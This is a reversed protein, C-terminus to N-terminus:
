LKVKKIAKITKDLHRETHATSLFNAEFQSPPLYIGEALMQTFYKSYRETDCKLASDYDKVTTDTFFLTFMSGIRNISHAVGKENMVDSIADTFQCTLKALKTYPKQTKLQTLMALGAAVCVPNGSLTGAQYVSGEPSLNKMIKASGGIAGIPFGGGIIKGLCTLDAKVGFGKQVGGYAVRFGTIVEDFILISKNKNCLTRLGKLFTQSPKIVGMNGAIPEVIVAAISKSYKTFAKKAADLDNYPVLITNKAFDKPVGPSSPAGLTTLGSGAAVLMHDVHGHYCGTFKIVKDRKTTGRALRIATMTAETGSSVLRVKEVSEIANVIMKALDTEQKTPIGYSTGKSLAKKVNGIVTPNAHGLILPGWSLCYDIYRNGDADYLYVGKAKDIFIPDAAVAKFARVPSNVGGPIYKQAEKFLKRNVPNAM